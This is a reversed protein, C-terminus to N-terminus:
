FLTIDIRTTDSTINGVILVRCHQTGVILRLLSVATGHGGNICCIAPKHPVNLIGTPVRCQQTGVILRLLSM